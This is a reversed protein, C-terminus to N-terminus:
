PATRPSSAARLRTMGDDDHFVSLDELLMRAAADAEEGAAPTLGDTRARVRRYGACVRELQTATGALGLEVLMTETAATAVRTIARVKSYSLRGAALQAHVEPLRELARAVRVRERAAGKSLGCHWNLWYATSPCGWAAYGERRDFEGILDLRAAEQAALRGAM